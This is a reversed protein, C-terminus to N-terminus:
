GGAAASFRDGALIGDAVPVVLGGDGEPVFLGGVALPVVLGAAVLLVTARGAPGCRIETGRSPTEAGTSLILALLPDSVGGDL